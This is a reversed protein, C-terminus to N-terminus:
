KELEVRVAGFGVGVYMCGDSIGGANWVGRCM